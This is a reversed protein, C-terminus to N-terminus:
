PTSLGFYDKAQKKVDSVIDNADYNYMEDVVKSPFIRHMSKDYMEDDLPTEFTDITGNKILFKYNLLSGSILILENNTYTYCEESCEVFVYNNSEGFYKCKSFCEINDKNEVLDKNNKENLFKTIIKNYKESNSLIYDYNHTKTYERKNKIEKEYISILFIFAIFIVIGLFIMLKSRKIM